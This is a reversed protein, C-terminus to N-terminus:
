IDLFGEPLNVTFRKKRKDVNQIFPSNLPILIEKSNHDLVLMPNPGEDMVEKIVGILENSEDYVEFGTVEDPYFEGQKLKAREPKPIYIGQRSIEGAMELSNIDEFKVFAKRGRVSIGEIFYPVLRNDKELFVSQLSEIDAPIGADLSITVEGKLGHPKLIFGIKLASKIEM